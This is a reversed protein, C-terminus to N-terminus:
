CINYGAAEVECSHLMSTSSSANRHTYVRNPMSRALVTNYISAGFASTALMGGLSLVILSTISNRM